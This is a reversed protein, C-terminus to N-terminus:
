CYVSEMFVWATMKM